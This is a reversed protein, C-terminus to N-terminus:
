LLMGSLFILGKEYFIARNEKKCLKNGFWTAIEHSIVAISRARRAWGAFSIV